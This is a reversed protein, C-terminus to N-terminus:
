AIHLKRMKTFQIVDAYNNGKKYAYLPLLERKSIMDGSDFFGFKPNMTEQAKIMQILHENYDEIKKVAKIRARECLHLHIISQFTNKIIQSTLSIILGIIIISSLFYVM